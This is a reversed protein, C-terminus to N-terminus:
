RIQVGFVCAEGFMKPFLNIEYEINQFLHFLVIVVHLMAISLEAM